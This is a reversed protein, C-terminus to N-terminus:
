CQSIHFIIYHTKSNKLLINKHSWFYMKHLYFVNLAGLAVTYHGNRYDTRAIIDMGTWEPLPACGQWGHGQPGYLGWGPPTMPFCYFVYFIKKELVVLGLAKMNQIYCHTTTKKIFVALWSGPTLFPGLGPTMPEWRSVIPFFFDQGFGCPGSSRYKIHLLTYYEEEYIRGVAGPTWVPWTGPIDNDVLFKYHFYISFVEERFGCSVLSTYKIQLLTMHLEVYIRGIMGRPDFIAGGRPTM